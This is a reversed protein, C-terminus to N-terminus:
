KKGLWEVSLIQEVKIKGGAEPINETSQKWQVRCKRGVYGKANDLIKGVSEDPRLIFFSLEKGEDTRMLWHAYDGEEIGLFTGGTTRAQAAAGKTKFAAIFSTYNSTLRKAESVFDASDPAVTKKDTNVWKFVKGGKFYFRNEFRGTVKGKDQKIANYRSFVFLPQGKELYYEESGDGDERPMAVVIKRLTAGDFMGELEFVLPGDKHTARVKHYSDEHKNIDAYVARHHATDDEARLAPQVVM